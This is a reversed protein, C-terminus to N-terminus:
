AGSRDFAPLVVVEAESSPVAELDDLEGILDRLESDTLDGLPAALPLESSTATVPVASATDPIARRDPRALMTGLGAVVLLSAAIRFAASGMARRWRGGGRYPPIAAAIRAPDVGPAVVAARVRSLIELEARCADCGAVHERVAALQPGGAGALLEPLRDRMEANECETM